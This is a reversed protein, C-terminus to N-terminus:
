SGKKNYDQNDNSAVKKKNYDQIVILCTFKSVDVYFASRVIHNENETQECDRKKWHQLFLLHYNYGM